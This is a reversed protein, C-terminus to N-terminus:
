RGCRRCSTATPSYRWTFSNYPLQRWSLLLLPRSHTSLFSAAGFFCQLLGYASQAFGSPPRSAVLAQLGLPSRQAGLALHLGVEHPGVGLLLPPLHFSLTGPSGGAHVPCFGLRYRRGLLQRPSSRRTM